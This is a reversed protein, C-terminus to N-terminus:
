LPTSSLMCLKGKMSIVRYDISLPVIITSVGEFPEQSILSVTVCDSLVSGLLEPWPEQFYLGELDGSLTQTHTHLTQAAKYRATPTYPPVVSRKVTLPLFDEDRNDLNDM